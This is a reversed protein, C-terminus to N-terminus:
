LSKHIENVENEYMFKEVLKAVIFELFYNSANLKTSDDAASLCMYLSRLVHSRAFKLFRVGEWDDQRYMLDTQEDFYYVLDIFIKQSERFNKGKIKDLTQFYHNRASECVAIKAPSELEELNKLHKKLADFMKQDESDFIGM